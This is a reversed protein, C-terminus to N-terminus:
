VIGPGLFQDDNWTLNRENKTKKMKNNIKEILRRFNKYNLLFIRRGEGELWTDIAGVNESFSKIVFTLRVAKRHQLISDIAQSFHFITSM